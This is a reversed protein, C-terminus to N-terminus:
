KPKRTKPTKRLAISLRSPLNTIRADLREITEQLKEVQQRREEISDFMGTVERLFASEIYNLLDIVYVLQERNIHTIQPEGHTVKVSLGLTKRIEQVAWEIDKNM